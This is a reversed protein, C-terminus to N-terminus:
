NEKVRQFTLDTMDLTPNLVKRIEINIINTNPFLKGIAGIIKTSDTDIVPLEMNYIFSDKITFLYFEKERNDLTVIVMYKMENM